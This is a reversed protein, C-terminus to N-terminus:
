RTPASRVPRCGCRGRSPGRATVRSGIECRSSPVCAEGVDDGSPRRTQFPVFFSVDICISRRRLQLAGGCRAAQMDLLPAGPVPDHQHVARQRGAGLLPLGLAREGVLPKAEHHEVPAAVALRRERGALVEEDVGVVDDLQHAVAGMQDPMGVATQARHDRRGAPGVDRLRQGEEFCWRQHRGVATGAHCARTSSTPRRHPWSM